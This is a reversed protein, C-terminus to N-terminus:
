TGDVDDVGRVTEVYCQRGSAILMRALTEAADKVHYVRGVRMLTHATQGKIPPLREIVRFGKDVVRLSM